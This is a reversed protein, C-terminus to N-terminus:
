KAKGEAREKMLREFEVQTAASDILRDFSAQEECKLMIVIEPVRRSDTLLAAFAGAELALVSEEPFNNWTGDIILSKDSPCIMKLLEKEHDEKSFDEPDNEIEEDVPVEEGEEVVPPPRFGRDLLRRRKRIDKETKMKALFEDKLKLESM